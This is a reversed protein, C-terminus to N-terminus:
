KVWDGTFRHRGLDLAAFRDRHDGKDVGIAELALNIANREQVWPGGSLEGNCWVVGVQLGTGGFLEAEIYAICGQNSLQISWKVVQAPLEGEDTLPLMAIDYIKRIQDTLPIMGFGQPLSIVNTNDIPISSLVNRKGLLAQITYAM